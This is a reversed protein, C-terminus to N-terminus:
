SAEGVRPWSLVCLREAIRCRTKKPGSERGSQTLRNAAVTRCLARSRNIAAANAAQTSQAVFLADMRCGTVLLM